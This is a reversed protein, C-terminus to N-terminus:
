GSGRSRQAWGTVAAAAQNGEPQGRQRAGPNSTTPVTQIHPHNEAFLSSRALRRELLAVAEVSADDRASTSAM